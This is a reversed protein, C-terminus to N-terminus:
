GIRAQETAQVEAAKCSAILADIEAQPVEPVGLAQWQRFTSMLFSAFLTYEIAGRHGLREELAAFQADTVTGAVVARVYAVLQRESDDLREEEGALLADLADPRVGCAFIDPLHLYLIANYDFDVSYVIDVLERDANSYAGRLQGERMLRGMTAIGAALPPSTLLAGFYANSSTHAGSWLNAQRSAVVDFDALEEEPLDARDPPQPLRSM